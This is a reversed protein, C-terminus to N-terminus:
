VKFEDFDNACVVNKFVKKAEKEIDKTDKYRQSFHTLILRKVNAKKAIEAAQKSTMHKFNETKKILEDKWTSECILLDSDKAAKIANLTYKTDTIFSVKKGKTVKTAKSASIKKGKWIIDKGKQLDKLIPHQKLGFKKLYNLDINRRDKEKLVYGLCPVDHDLKYANLEIDNDEFFKGEGIEKVKVDINLPFYFWTRINKFFNLTGKPGYIELTKQYNNIALSQILGPIGIVHDGHWHTILLKNIRTLPINAIRFQRHTGEACDILINNNKCSFFVATPNRQKTPLAASTGLFKIEM